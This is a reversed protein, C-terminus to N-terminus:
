DEVRARKEAAISRRIDGLDRVARDVQDEVEELRQSLSRL